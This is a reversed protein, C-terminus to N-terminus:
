WLKYIYIYMYIGINVTIDDSCQLATNHAVSSNYGVCLKYQMKGSHRSTSISVTCTAQTTDPNHHWCEFSLEKTSQNFMTRDNRIVVVETFDSYNSLQCEFTTKGNQGINLPGNSCSDVRPQRVIDSISACVWVCFCHLDLNM